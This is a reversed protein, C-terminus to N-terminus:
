VFLLAIAVMVAIVGSVRGVVLAVDSPEADRYHWGWSLFWLIKPKLINLVGLGILFVIVVVKAPTMSIGSENFVASKIVEVLTEGSAYQTDILGDWSGIHKNATYSAGNPYSVTISYGDAKGSATFVYTHTGDSVTNAETDVVYTIGNRTESYDTQKESCSCLFLAFVAVCVLLVALRKKIVM